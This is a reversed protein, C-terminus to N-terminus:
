CIRRQSHDMIWPNSHLIGEVAMHMVVHQEGEIRPYQLNKVPQPGNDKIQPECPPLSNEGPQPGYDKIQPECPPLSNEGPQPGNDKVQPECPTLLNEEPQPGNDM